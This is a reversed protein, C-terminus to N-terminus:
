VSLCAYLSVQIVFNKKEHNKSVDEIRLRVFAEGNEDITAVQDEPVMKCIDQQSVLTEDEYLLLFKLQVHRRSSPVKHNNCDFLQVLFEVCNERGGEDKYWV